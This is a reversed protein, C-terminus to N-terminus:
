LYLKMMCLLATTANVRKSTPRLTLYLFLKSIEKLDLIKRVGLIVLSLKNDVMVSKHATDLPHRM